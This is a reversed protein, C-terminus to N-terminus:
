SDVNSPLAQFTSGWASLAPEELAPAYGLSAGKLHERRPYAGTAHVRFIHNDYIFIILSLHHKYYLHERPACNFVRLLMFSMELTM